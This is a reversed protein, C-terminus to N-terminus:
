LEFSLDFLSSRFYIFASTEGKKQLFVRSEGGEKGSLDDAPLPRKEGPFPICILIYVTLVPYAM